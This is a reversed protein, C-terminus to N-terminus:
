KLASANKNKIRKFIILFAILEVTFTIAWSIPYSFYLCGVTPNARFVTYIWLIRFGCAGLVTIVMPVIASGIGRLGASMGEMLGLLAYFRCSYALRMVGYEIKDSADKLYISLLPRAFYYTLPGVIVGTVLACALSIFVSKRVRDYKKAGMNQAAFTQSGHLFSSTIVNPFAEISQAAASGDVAASGFSNLTSQILVSSINFLVSTLGSPLAIRLITLLREKIIKFRKLYVRCGDTRKMLTLVVLVASFTQSLATALAVGAADMHFVIVFVLNLIVNLLGALTIFILPRKSDGAARLIAGGINYVLLPITGCLYITLYVTAQDLMDEPTHLLNELIARSGFLGVLTMVAGCIVVAPFATHVTDSVKKDNKEGIAHATVVGTGTALGIFFNILLGILVNTSGVAGVAHEAGFRGVVITDATNFLQQIISSLMIPIYFAIIKPLLKGETMDVSNMKM